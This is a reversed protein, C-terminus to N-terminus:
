YLSELSLMVSLSELTWNKWATLALAARPLWDVLASLLLLLVVVQVNSLFWQHCCAIAPSSALLAVAVVSLM